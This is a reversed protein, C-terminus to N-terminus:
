LIFFVDLGALQEFIEVCLEYFVVIFCFFCCFEYFFM